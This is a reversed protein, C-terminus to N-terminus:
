TALPIGRQRREFGLAVLRRRIEDRMTDPLPTHWEWLMQGIALLTSAMEEVRVENNNMRAIYGFEWRQFVEIVRTEWDKDIEDLMAAQAEVLMATVHTLETLEDVRNNLAKFGVTMKAAFDAFLALSEKCM